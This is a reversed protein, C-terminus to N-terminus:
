LHADVTEGTDVPGADGSAPAALVAVTVNDAGGAVLAAEVLRRAVTDPDRADHEHVLTSVAKPSEAYNWLGDSCVVVLGDEEPSHERVHPMVPDGDPGLWATIQHAQPHALAEEVPVGAAIAGAAWSDDVTLVLPGANDGVWYARSDGVNAVVVRGPGVLALVITTSGLVDPDQSAGVTLAGQAASVARRALDPWDDMELIGQEVVAIAAAAAGASAVDPNQTTSVGDCVVAAARGGKAVIGYADENRHHRKGRDTAAAVTGLDTERHDEPRPQRFGCRDCFPGGGSPAGAFPAGCYSCLEEDPTSALATGCSECFRANEEVPDGCAPCTVV